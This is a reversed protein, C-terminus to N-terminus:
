GVKATAEALEAVYEDLGWTLSLATPPGVSAVLSEGVIQAAAGSKIQPLAAVTPVGLLLDQNAQTDMFTVLVDSQLKDAEEFSVAGFFEEVGKSLEEIAPATTFGLDELFQTRPDAPTYFYLQTTDAAMTAITKGEFEPHAEAAAAIEADIDALVQTAEESKGLAEGVIEITEKWPTQWPAEPYAVVDVDPIASLKDYQEQTLGSYPALILDPRATVIADYDDASEIIAPTEAGAEAIAEEVWPLVGEANGGYPQIEIGVPVVGVALAADTSGWGLTVVREPQEEIVAEGFAHPITVTEWGSGASGAPDSEASTQGEGCATLAFLSALLVATGRVSRKSLQDRWTSATSGVTPEM